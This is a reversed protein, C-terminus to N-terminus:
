FGILRQHPRIQFRNLPVGADVSAILAIARFSREYDRAMFEVPTKADFRRENGALHQREM